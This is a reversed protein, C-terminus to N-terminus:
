RDTEKGNDWYRRVIIDGGVSAVVEVYGREEHAELIRDFVVKAKGKAERMRKSEKM